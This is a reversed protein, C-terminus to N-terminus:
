DEEELSMLHANGHDSIFWVNPFFGDKEMKAKLLSKYDDDEGVTLYLKGSQFFKMHDSTTIDDDEMFIIGSSEEEEDDNNCEPCPEM